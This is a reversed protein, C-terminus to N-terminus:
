SGDAAAKQAARLPPSLESQLAVYLVQLEDVKLDAVASADGAALQNDLWDIAILELKVGVGEMQTIGQALPGKTTLVKGLVRGRLKELREDVEGTASGPIGVLGASAKGLKRAEALMEDAGLGQHTEWFAPAAEKGLIEVLEMKAANLMRTAIEEESPADTGEAVPAGVPSESDADVTEELPILFMQLLGTKFGASMAQNTAKDAWDRSEGQVTMSVTSRDPATFNYRVLLRVDTALNGKAGLQQQLYQADLVEPLIVVGREAFLSHLTNFVDDIGRFAYGQERNTQEKPIAPVEAMIEGLLVEINKDAM